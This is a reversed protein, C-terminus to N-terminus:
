DLALATIPRKALDEVLAEDLMPSLWAILTAHPNLRDLQENRPANVGLIVEAEFPDGIQAGAAEYAPDSFSSRAGAGSEVVVEYGLKRLQEVTNPTSAVRTEGPHAEKLVGIRM